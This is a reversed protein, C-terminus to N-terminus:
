FTNKSPHICHEIYTIPDAKNIMNNLYDVDNYNKSNNSIRDTVSLSTNPLKFLYNTM